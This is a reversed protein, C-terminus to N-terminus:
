SLWRYFWNARKKNQNERLKKDRLKFYFYLVFSLVAAFFCWVSAFNVTYVRWSIYAFIVVLVSFLNIIRKSSIIGAGVTALGYLVLMLMPYPAETHYYYICKNIIQASVPHQFLAILQAVGVVLGGAVLLGIIKKRWPQTELLFSGLPAHIPWWFSAFFLFLISLVTVYAGNGLLNLWLLGEIGQQAAFLLPMSALLIERKDKVQTLTAIGVVGLAASATFSITPSFCM